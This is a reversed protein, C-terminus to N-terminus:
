NTESNGRTIPDLEVTSISKQPKQSASGTSSKLIKTSFWTSPESSRNQLKKLLNRDIGGRVIFILLGQTSIVGALLYEALLQTSKFYLFPFVVCWGIGFVQTLALVYDIQFM